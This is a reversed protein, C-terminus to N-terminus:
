TMSAYAGFAKDMYDVLRDQQLTDTNDLPREALFTVMKELAAASKYYIPLYRTLGNNALELYRANSLTLRAIVALGLDEYTPTNVYLNSLYCQLWVRREGRLWKMQLDCLLSAVDYPAWGRGTALIDIVFLNNEFWMLNSTQYDGHILTSASAAVSIIREQLSIDIAPFAHTNKLKEIREAVCQGIVNMEQNSHMFALLVASVELAKQWYVPRQWSLMALTNQGLYQVEINSGVKRVQPVLIGTSSLLDHRLLYEDTPFQGVPLCWGNNLSKWEIGSAGLGPKIIDIVDKPIRRENITKEHM